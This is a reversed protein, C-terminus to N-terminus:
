RVSVVRLKEQDTQACVLMQSVTADGMSAIVEFEVTGPNKSEIRRATVRAGADHLEKPLSLEMPADGQAPSTVVQATGALLLQRLQADSAGSMTRRADAGFAAALAAMAVGVLAMMTVAIIIAVGRRHHRRIRKM